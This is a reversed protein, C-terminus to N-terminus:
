TSTVPRTVVAQHAARILDQHEHDLSIPRHGRPGVQFFAIPGFLKGGEDGFLRLMGVAVRNDNEKTPPM